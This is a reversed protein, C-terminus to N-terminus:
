QGEQEAAAAQAAAQQAAANAVAAASALGAPTAPTVSHVVSREARHLELQPYLAFLLIAALFPALVVGERWGLERSKVDPGTRNHMTRIFMRLMYVAAMVVGAFAIIAIALKAHFLGLLIMFEGVFNGSGPMALAAFAVILFTAALIPARMAIGGMDRIDESGGARAGLVAIIFFLPAVVLGHNVM